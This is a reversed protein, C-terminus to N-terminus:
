RQGGSRIAIVRAGSVAKPRAFVVTLLGSELAARTVEIGARHIRRQLHQFRPLRVRGLLAKMDMEWGEELPQRGARKAGGNM